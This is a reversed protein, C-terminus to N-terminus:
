SSFLRFFIFVIFFHFPFFFSIRDHLVNYISSMPIAVEAVLKLINIPSDKTCKTLVKLGKKDLQVEWGDEKSEKSAEEKFKEFDSGILLQM